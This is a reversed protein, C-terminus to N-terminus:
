AGLGITISGSVRLSASRTAPDNAALSLNGSISEVFAQFTHTVPSTAAAATPYTIVIAVETGSAADYNTTLAVQGADEVNELYDISVRGNDRMGGAFEGDGTSDGDTLDVEGRAQDPLGIATVNAIATGGITITTGHAWFKAM